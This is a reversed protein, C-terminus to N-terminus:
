IWIIVGARCNIGFARGLWTLCDMDSDFELQTGEGPFQRELSRLVPTPLGFTFWDFTPKAPQIGTNLRRQTLGPYTPNSMGLKHRGDGSGVPLTGAGPLHYVPHIWFFLKNTEANLIASTICSSPLLNYPPWPRILIAPAYRRWTPM